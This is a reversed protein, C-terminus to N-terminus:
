RACGSASTQNGLSDYAYTTLPAAAVGDPSPQTFTTPLGNTDRAITTVNGYADTMSTVKGLLDTQYGTDHGLADTMTSIVASELLLDAPSGSSSSGYGVSQEASAGTSAGGPM